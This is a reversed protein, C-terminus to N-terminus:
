VEEMEEVTIKERNLSHESGLQSYLKDEAQKESEANVEREFVPSDRGLDIEGSFRYTTMSILTARLKKFGNTVIIGAETFNEL